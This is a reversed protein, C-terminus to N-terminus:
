GKIDKLKQLFTFFYDYMYSNILLMPIKCLPRGAM